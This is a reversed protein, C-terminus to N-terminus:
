LSKGLMRALPRFPRTLYRLYLSPSVPRDLIAAMNDIPPFLLPLLWRVVNPPDALSLMLLDRWYGRTPPTEALREAPLWARLRAARKSGLEPPASELMGLAHASSLGFDLAHVLGTRHALSELEAADISAGWLTWARALDRLIRLESFRHQAFHAALHVVTLPKDFVKVPAGRHDFPEVHSWLIEEPVPYLRPSVANWHLEAHTTAGSPLRRVMAHQFDVRLQPELKRFPPDEYGLGLLTQHARVADGRRVMVDNDVMSRADLRGFLRRTLPIGKLVVM